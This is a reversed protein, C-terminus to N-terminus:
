TALLSRTWTGPPLLLHWQISGVTCAAYASRVAVRSAGLETGTLGLNASVQQRDTQRTEAGAEGPVPMPIERSCQTVGAGDVFQCLTGASPHVLYVGYAM